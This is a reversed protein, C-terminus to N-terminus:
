DDESNYDDRMVSAYLESFNAGIVTIPLGMTLIGVIMAAMAVIRGITSQPIMDGYGVTSITTFARWAATPISDFPTQEYIESCHEPFDGARESFRATLKQGVYECQPIGFITKQTLRHTCTYTCEYGTPRMWVKLTENYKGRECYYILSACVIVVVISMFVLMNLPKMSRSITTALVVLAGKSVKFLRFIRVLRIVRLVQLGPVQAGDFVIEIYFPIISVLDVINLFECMFRLKNRSVFLRAVYEFTFAAICSAEIIMFPTPKTWETEHEYLSPITEISFGFTSVMILFIIFLAWCTAAFSSGPVNFFNNLRDILFDSESELAVYPETPFKGASAAHKLALQLDKEVVSVTCTSQLDTRRLVRPKRLKTAGIAEVMYSHHMETSAGDHIGTPRDDAASLPVTKRAGLTGPEECHFAHLMRLRLCRLSSHPPLTVMRTHEGVRVFVIVDNAASSSTKPKSSSDGDGVNKGRQNTKENSAGKANADTCTDAKSNSGGSKDDNGEGDEDVKGINKKQSKRDLVSTTVSAQVAFM